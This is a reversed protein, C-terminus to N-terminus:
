INERKEPFADHPFMPTTGFHMLISPGALADWDVGKESSKSIKSEQLGNHMITRGSFLYNALLWAGPVPCVQFGLTAIQFVVLRKGVAIAPWASQPGRKPRVHKFFERNKKGLRNKKRQQAAAPAEQARNENVQRGDRRLEVKGDELFRWCEWRCGAPDKGTRRVLVPRHAEAQTGQDRDLSRDLSTM